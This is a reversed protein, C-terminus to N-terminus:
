VRPSLLVKSSFAKSTTEAVPVKYVAGCAGGLYMFYYYRWLIRLAHKKLWGRCRLVEGIIDGVMEGYNIGGWLEDRGM